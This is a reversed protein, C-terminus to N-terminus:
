HAHANDSSVAHTRDISICVYYRVSFVGAVGDPTDFLALTSPVDISLKQLESNGFAYFQHDYSQSAPDVINVEPCYVPAPASRTRDLRADNTERFPIERAKTYRDRQSVTPRTKTRPEAVAIRSTDVRRDLHM